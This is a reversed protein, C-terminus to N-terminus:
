HEARKITTDEAVSVHRGSSGGLHKIYFKILLQKTVIRHFIAKVPM